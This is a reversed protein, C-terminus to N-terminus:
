NSFSVFISSGMANVELSNAYWPKWSISRLLSGIRVMSVGSPNSLRFLTRSICMFFQKWSDQTCSSQSFNLYSLSFLFILLLAPTRHKSLPHLPGFLNYFFPPSVGDTNRWAKKKTNGIFYLMTAYLDVIM